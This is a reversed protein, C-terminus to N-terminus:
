KAPGVTPSRIATSPASRCSAAPPAPSFSRAPTTSTTSRSTPSARRSGFEDAIELVTRRTVGELVGHAPTSLTEALVAFINFGPGETVNGNGDPLVPNMAGRDFAEFMGRTLDGWQLNKVTPDIAGAPIRITERAVVLDTGVIQQDPDSIWVYPIAYAYFQAKYQPDRM